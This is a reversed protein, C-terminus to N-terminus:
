LEACFAALKHWLAITTPKIKIEDPVGKYIFWDRAQQHMRYSANIETETFQEKMLRKRKGTNWRSCSMTEAVVKYPILEEIEERTLSVYVEM